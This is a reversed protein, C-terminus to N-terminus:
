RWEQSKINESSQTLGVRIEVWLSKDKEQCDCALAADTLGQNAVLSRRAVVPLPPIM